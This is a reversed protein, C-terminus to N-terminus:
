YASSVVFYSQLDSKAAEGFGHAIGLRLNSEINYGLVFNVWLEAGAGLHLVDFPSSRPIRDYAGGWDAFVAGSVQRMFFPLTSVGRDVYAIPFRYEANVLSYNNGVFQLPEFGRLVFQRQRVDRVYTDILSIDAYGGTAFGGRRAYSGASSGASAALALVHHHRWPMRLYARAEGYFSSYTAESALAPGSWDTGLYLSFGREASVGYLSGEVNGFSYEAHAWTFLGSSPETPVPAWPDVRNGFPADHSLDSVNFSVAASQADFESLSTFGLRTSVGYNYELVTEATEGVRYNRQPAAFRSVEASFDFPLRLYIYALGGRWEPGGPEYILEAAYGHHGVADSGRTSVKLADRGFSGGVYDLRYARPRVTPLPNYRTVPYHKTPAVVLGDSREPPALPELWRAPDLPMRFLDYGKSTYGAYVLTRGDPSIAPMYAGTLVNTVQQIRGSLLEYAHVNAVGGRDSTFFLYRGDPSWAPQQDLARDHMLETVVGSELDLVRIDRYGGTSWVGYAIRRGDPSFRPTFVQEYRAAPVLRRTKELRGEADLEAIRLTTTGGASTVFAVHRGDPSVDPARAREGVTLRERRLDQGNESRVNAPLRFLDRFIYRRRSPAYSDFFISCDPAVSLSGGSSRTLLEPEDATTAELKVRYVGSREDSDDRYYALEDAGGRTCQRPLFRPSWTLRGSSTLRAGERVGRARIARAQAEYRAELTAKWGAYLEPYTRGTARRIARNIGWPIVFAGYENSVRAFTDPGYTELIWEIFKSGYLYWIEGGPWRRPGHSIVDLPALNGSLVDTRLYMDFLSGKLRGASSHASEMAVALGETIWRPQAGNPAFSKGLIANIIAPVGSANDVHLVHTYEHTVLEGQWDDYDNLASMDEPASAFLRIINYPLTQASGNASDSDDSLVLDTVQHPTWGLEPTLREHAREAIAATRQALHDLGSHYHVRFHPTTVTFWDLYPDGANAVGASALLAM